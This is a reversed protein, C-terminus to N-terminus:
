RPQVRLLRRHLRQQRQGGRRFLGDRGHEGMQQDSPCCRAHHPAAHRSDFAAACLFSAPKLLTLPPLPAAAATSAYPSCVQLDPHDEDIGSDIVQVIVSSDGATIGWAQDIGVADYHAQDGDTYYPDNPTSSSAARRRVGGKVDGNGNYSNHNNGATATSGIARVAFAAEIHEVM